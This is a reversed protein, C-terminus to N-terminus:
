QSAVAGGVAGSHRRRCFWKPEFRKHIRRWLPASQLRFKMALYQLQLGNKTCTASQIVCPFLPYFRKSQIKVGGGVELSCGRLRDLPQLNICVNGLSSPRSGASMNQLCAARINGCSLRLFSQHAFQGWQLDNSITRHLVYIWWLVPPRSREFMFHWLLHTICILQPRDSRSWFTLM